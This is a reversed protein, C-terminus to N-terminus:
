HPFLFQTRSHRSHAKSFRSPLSPWGRLNGQRSRFPDKRVLIRHTCGRNERLPLKQLPNPQRRHPSAHVISKTKRAKPNKLVTKQGPFRRNPHRPIPFPLPQKQTLPRPQLTLNNFLTPPIPQISMQFDPHLRSRPRERKMPLFKLCNESNNNNPRHSLQGCNRHIQTRCHQKSIVFPQQLYIPTHPLPRVSSRRGGHSHTLPESLNHQRSTSRTAAIRTSQPDSM